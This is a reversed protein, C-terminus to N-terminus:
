KFSTEVKTIKWGSGARQLTIVDTRTFDPFKMSLKQISLNEDEWVISKTYKCKQETNETWRLAYLLQPKYAVNAKSGHQINFFADDDIADTIGNPKGHVVANIYINVARYKSLDSRKPLTSASLNQCIFLLLVAGVM